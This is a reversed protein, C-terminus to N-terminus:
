ATVRNERILKRKLCPSCLQGGYPRSPTRESKKLKRIEVQTGRPMGPLKRDCTACHHYKPKDALRKFYFKGGPTKVLKRKGSRISKRVM